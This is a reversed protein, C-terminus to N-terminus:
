KLKTNTQTDPIFSLKDNTDTLDIINYKTKIDQNILQSFNQAIPDDISKIIDFLYDSTLLISELIFEHYSRLKM